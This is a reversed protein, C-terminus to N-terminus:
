DEDDNFEVNLEEISSYGDDEAANLEELIANGHNVADKAAQRLDNIELFGKRVARATPGVHDELKDVSKWLREYNAKVFM